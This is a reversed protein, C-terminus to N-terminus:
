GNYRSVVGQVAGVYDLDTVGITPFAGVIQATMRVRPVYKETSGGDHGRYPTQYQMTPLVTTNGIAHSALTPQYLKYVYAGTAANAEGGYLALEGSQDERWIPGVTSTTM